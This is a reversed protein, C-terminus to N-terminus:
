DRGRQAEATKAAKGGDVREEPVCDAVHESLRFGYAHDHIEAATAHIM